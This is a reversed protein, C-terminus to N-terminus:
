ELLRGRWFLNWILSPLKRYSTHQVLRAVQKGVLFLGVLGIITQACAMVIVAHTLTNGSLRAAFPAFLWIPIWWLIFLIVGLRLRIISVSIHAVENM